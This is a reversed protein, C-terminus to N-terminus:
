MLITILLICSIDPSDQIGRRTSIQATLIKRIGWNRHKLHNQCNRVIVLDEQNKEIVSSLVSAVLCNETLRGEYKSSCLLYADEIKLSVRKEEKQGEQFLETM